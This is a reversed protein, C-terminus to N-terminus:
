RDNERSRRYGATTPDYEVTATDDAFNVRADYVDARNRLAKEINLACSACHMGAIRIEAKKREEPM